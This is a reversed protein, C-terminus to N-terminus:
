KSQDKPENLRKISIELDLTEFVTQVMRAMGYSLDSDVIFELKALKLKEMVQQYKTRLSITDSHSFKIDELKQFSVQETAGPAISSDNELNFFHKLAKEATLMGNPFTYIINEKSSYHYEIMLRKYILKKQLM